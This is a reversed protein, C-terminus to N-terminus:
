ARRAERASGAERDDHDHHPELRHLGLSTGARHHQCGADAPRGLAAAVVLGGASFEDQHEQPARRDRPASRRRAIRSCALRSRPSVPADVHDRRADTAVTGPRDPAPQRGAAQVDQPRPEGHGRTFLDTITPEEVSADRQTFVGILKAGSMADDILRVSAERAVALPMFSNPFLVTDRLPLIPLESPVALPRDTTVDLDLLDDSM